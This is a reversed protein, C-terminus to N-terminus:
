QRQGLNASTFVARESAKSFCNTLFKRWKKKLKAKSANSKVWEEARTIEQRHDIGPYAVLWNKFDDDSIGSFKQESFSFQIDHPEAASGKRPESCFSSRLSDKNNNKNKRIYEQEHNNTPQENTTLQDNRQNNDEPNIDWVDSR